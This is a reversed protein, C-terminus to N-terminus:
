IPGVGGKPPLGDASEPVEDPAPLAEGRAPPPWARPERDPIRRQSQTAPPDVLQTEIFVGVAQFLGVAQHEAIITIRSICCPTGVAVDRSEKM